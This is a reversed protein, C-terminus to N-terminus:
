GRDAMTLHDTDRGWTAPLDVRESAGGGSGHGFPPIAEPSYPAVAPGSGTRMRIVRGPLGRTNLVQRPLVQRPTRDCLRHNRVRPRHERDEGARRACSWRAQDSHTSCCIQGCGASMTKGDGSQNNKRAAHPQRRQRRHSSSAAGATRGPRGDDNAVTAERQRGPPGLPHPSPGITEGGTSAAAHWM